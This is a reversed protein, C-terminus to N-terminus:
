LCQRVGVACILSAESFGFMRGDSTQGFVHEGDSEVTNLKASITTGGHLTFEVVANESSQLSQLQMDEVGFVGTGM